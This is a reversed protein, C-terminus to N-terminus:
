SALPEPGKSEEKAGRPWSTYATVILPAFSGCPVHPFHVSSPIDPQIVRYDDHCSRRVPIRSSGPAWRKPPQFPNSTASQTIAAAIAVLVGCEPSQDRPRNTHRSRVEDRRLLRSPGVLRAPRTPSIRRARLTILRNLITPRQM